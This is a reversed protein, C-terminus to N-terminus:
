VMQFYIHIEIKQIGIIENKHRMERFLVELLVNVYLKTVSRKTLKSYKVLLYVLWYTKGKNPQGPTWKNGTQQISKDYFCVPNKFYKKESDVWTIM